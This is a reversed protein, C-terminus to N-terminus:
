VVSASFIFIRVRREIHLLKMPFYGEQKKLGTEKDQITRQWNDTETTLQQNEM